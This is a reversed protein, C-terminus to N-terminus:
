GFISGLLGTLAGTGNGIISGILSVKDGKKRTDEKKSLGMSNGILGLLGGIGGAVSGALGSIASAKESDKKANKWDFVGQAIGAGSGILGFINSVWGAATNDKGDKKQHGGIIDTIGSIIGAGSGIMGAISGNKKNQAEERNEQSLNTSNLKEEAEAFDKIGKGGGMLSSALGFSGASIGLNGVTKDDAGTADAIDTALSLGNGVGGAASGGRGLIEGLVDLFGM